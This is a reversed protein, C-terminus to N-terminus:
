IRSAAWGEPSKPGHASAQWLIAGSASWCPCELPRHDKVARLPKLALAYSTISGSGNKRHCWERKWRAKEPGAAHPHAQNYTAM